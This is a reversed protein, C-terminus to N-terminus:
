WRRGSRRATGSALENVVLVYGRGDEAELGVMVDAVRDGDVDGPVALTRGFARTGPLSTSSLRRGDPGYRDVAGEGNRRGPAGVLATGEFLALSEGLREGPAGRM